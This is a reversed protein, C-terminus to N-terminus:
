PFTIFYWSATVYTIFVNLLSGSKTGGVLLSMLSWLKRGDKQKTAMQTDAMGRLM